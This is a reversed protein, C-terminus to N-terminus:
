LRRLAQTCRLTSGVHQLTLLAEVSHGLRVHRHRLHLRDGVGALWDGIMAEDSLARANWASWRVQDGTYMANKVVTTVFDKETDDSYLITSTKRWYRHKEKEKRSRYDDYPGRAYRRQINAMAQCIAVYRESGDSHVSFQRRRTKSSLMRNCSAIHWTVYLQSCFYIRNGIKQVAMM